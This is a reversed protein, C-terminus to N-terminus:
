PRLSSRRVNRPGSPAAYATPSALRTSQPGLHIHAGTAKGPMAQDFAFFPIRNATLYDRLWVGEPQDPKIAVDVRGRHDFGLARHVATEGNASVPLAHGFHGQFATEVRHFIQPNFIGNGDFRQAVRTGEAASPARTQAAAEARAMDNLERALKARTDALECERRAFDMNQLYSNLSIQAAIGADILTKADDFAQKRRDFRRQAAAVMQEAQDETLDQLQIDKNLLVGDEADAVATKAKELQIAPLAGSDVLGQIRALDLKAKAVEPTDVTQACLCSACCLLMLGSFLRM